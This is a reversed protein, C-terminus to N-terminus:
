ENINHENIDSPVAPLKARVADPETLLYTNGLEYEFMMRRAFEIMVIGVLSCGLIFLCLYLM